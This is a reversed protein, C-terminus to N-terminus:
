RDSFLQNFMFEPMRKELSENIDLTNNHLWFQFEDKKKIVPMCYLSEYM